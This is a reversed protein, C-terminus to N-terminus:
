KMEKILNLFEEECNSALLKEMLSPDQFNNVLTQLVEIHGEDHKFGLVFILRVDHWVDDTAMECWKISDKLRIVAIFQEKIYVPDAHPIAVAYPQTPLGTPYKKERQILGQAYDETVLGKDVLKKTIQTFFEDSNKVEMNLDILDKRLMETNM